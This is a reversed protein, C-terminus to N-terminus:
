GQIERAASRNDEKVRRELMSIKNGRYEGLYRLKINLKEIEHHFYHEVVAPHM